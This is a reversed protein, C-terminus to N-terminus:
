VSLRCRCEKGVRREESRVDSKWIGLNPDYSKMRGERSGPSGGGTEWLFIDDGASCKEIGYFSKNGSDVWAQGNYRYTRISADPHGDVISVLSGTPILVRSEDAFQVGLDNKSLTYNENVDFIFENNGRAMAVVFANSAHWYSDGSGSDFTNTTSKSQWVNQEDLYYITVEDPNPVTNHSVIFNNASTSFHPGTTEDVSSVNSWDSGNWLRRVIKGNDAVA